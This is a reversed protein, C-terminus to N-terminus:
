TAVELLAERVATGGISFASYDGDKIGKWVAEDPVYFGTWWMCVTADSKKVQGSEDVFALGMKAMKEPTLVMSEVLHSKGVEDHSTDSQRSNLVFDYAAHELDEPFIVDDQRDVLLAGDKGVSVSAWGFVIQQDDDIKAIEARLLEDSM